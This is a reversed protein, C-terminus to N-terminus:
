FGLKDDIIEYSDIIIQPTYRGMWENMNARGVLNIKMKSYNSLEEILEKAFFQIYTIGFKEFRVTDKRAGIVKVDSSTINIDSIYILPEPSEQGWVDKYEALDEILQPLATDAALYAFDVTYVDEEFDINKLEQNSFTLFSEISEGPIGVGFANPHGSAYEFFGSETLFSKFDSLESKNLGRASGRFIGDSGARAVITPKKFKASLQMAVLGNLTPPFDDCEDLQVFLVKDELWSFKHIKIELQEVATDKIRNQKNRANTCERAAEISVKEYTGKAGKKKSPILRDGDIYALFLREKEELTGVRITANVLPVIYFAVSIPNVAALIQDDTPYSLGTISYAQKQLLAWFFKNNISKLGEYIIYRNELNLVSGMDGIIGWAALDIYKDANHTGLISDVYRCFQFVVGAGTLEKNSYQPSLQNNIVVANESIPEDTIHHDLVLVPVDIEKLREHYVYDNSSSDPLIILDYKKNSNIITDIHDELGHQKGSHLFYEIEINPNIEKSYQYIIASSTFGDNDSDVILLINTGNKIKDLYLQAGEQINNLKDPNQLYSSSPILYGNIDEIGRYKLLNAGFNDKFRPVKCSYKM